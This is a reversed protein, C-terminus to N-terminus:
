GPWARPDLINKDRLAWFHWNIDELVSVADWTSIIKELEFASCVGLVIAEVDAQQAAFSLCLDMLSCSLHKALKELMYHHRRIQENVWTPWSSAPTLLLGQLFISRVHIAVGKARLSNITGDTILRQDYLSLPLQVLDLLHPNIGELDEASYISIGLRRVLERDRLSLLWKELYFSGQKRLDASSHLLFADFSKAGVTHLSKKFFYEWKSVDEAIFVSNSQAHFKSILRFHHHKRMVRGLVAEADGYAQASDLLQIGGAEAVDLINSVELESVKGFTNTIGYALGFQATGLCLKPKVFSSKHM